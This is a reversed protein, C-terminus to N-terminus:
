NFDADKGYYKALLLTELDSKNIAKYCLYVMGTCILIDALLYGKDCIYDIGMISFICLIFTTYLLIGKFVLIIRNYTVM